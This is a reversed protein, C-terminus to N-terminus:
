ENNTGGTIPNTYLLGPLPLKHWVRVGMNFIREIANKRRLSTGKGIAVNHAEVFNFNERGTFCENALPESVKYGYKTLYQDFRKLDTESLRTTFAGFLNGWYIQINSINTFRIDPVVLNQSVNYNLQESMAKRALSEIYLEDKTFDDEMNIVNSAVQFMGSLSPTASVRSLDWNSGPKGLNLPGKNDTYSLGASSSGSLAKAIKDFYYSTDRYNMTASQWDAMGQQKILNFNAANIASGSAESFAIPANIWQGGSVSNDLMTSKSAEAGKYFKPRVFPCGNPSMDESMCFTMFNLSSDYIDYANYTESDGSARNFMTVNNYNSYVKNNQVTYGEYNYTFNKVGDAGDISFSFAKARIEYIFGHSMNGTDDSITQISDIYITPIKYSGVIVSELGLSRLTRIAKEIRGDNNYINGAASTSASGLIYLGVTPYTGELYSGDAFAMRYKTTQTLSPLNPVTATYDGESADGIFINAKYLEESELDVTSAIVTIFDEEYNSTGLGITCPELVLPTQPSYDEQTVNAFLTDDIVSRRTCWGDIYTLNIAGGETTLVDELLTLNAVNDNIMNVSMVFYYITENTTKLSIYDADKINEYTTAIKLNVIDRDQKVYVSDFTRTEQVTELLAPGDPVNNFTFGTNFYAKVVCKM